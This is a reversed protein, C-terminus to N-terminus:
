SFAATKCQIIINRRPLIITNYLRNYRQSCRYLGGINKSICECNFELGCEIEWKSYDGFYKRSNAIEITDRHLKLIFDNIM